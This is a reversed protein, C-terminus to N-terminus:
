QSLKSNRTEFEQIWTESNGALGMGVAITGTSQSRFNHFLFRIYCSGGSVYAVVGVVAAIASGAVVAVAVAPSFGVVVVIENGAVVVAAVVAVIASGVV